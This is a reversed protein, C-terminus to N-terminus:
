SDLKNPPPLNEPLLYKDPRDAILPNVSGAGLSWPAGHPAIV